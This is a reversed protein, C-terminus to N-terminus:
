FRWYWGLGRKWWLWPWRLCLAMGSVANHIRQAAAAPGVMLAFVLLVGVIQACEAVALAVIVLFLMSVLRLSVGKAEALEPQLSAFLLPRAIVALAVVAVVGLCALLSWVTAPMSASCTASCCRPRRHRTPPTSICSCCAWASRCRWCSASPSMASICGSASCGSASARRAAYLRGSGLAAVPRGAGRRDRRRLRCPFACPGRIDAGRLVLFYGVLAACWASRDPPWSPTGCSNMTLMLTAGHEHEHADRRSKTVAQCSSSAATRGAGCRDHSGYLQSLVPGTIVEDVTGLAAQGNGLYLVRDLAGLLPNIEHACFLVAIGLERQVGADLEVVARQHQPDLSILPEDLLLLRPDGLLAQALLLRQREGGSLRRSRVAALDTARVMELAWAVERRAPAVRCRCAGAIAAPGARARFGLRQAAHADLAGRTQPMYGISPNGRAVPRGLM